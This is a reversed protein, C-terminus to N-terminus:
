QEAKTIKPKWLGRSMKKFVGLYAEPDMEPSSALVRFTGGVEDIDFGTDFFGNKKYFKFRRVRQDYNEANEDLPEVNLLVTKGPHNQKLLGLIASGYGKGRIEGNVAFFMVFLMGETAVTYTFGCFLDEEYYGAIEVGPQTALLRMLWWPMQEHKPFSSFYLEKIERRNPVKKYSISTLRNM